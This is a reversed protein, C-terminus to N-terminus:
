FERIREREEATSTNWIRDNKGTRAMSHNPVPSHRTAVHQAYALPPPAATTSRKKKRPKKNGATPMPAHGYGPQYHGNTGYAHDYHLAEGDDESYYDGENDYAMDDLEPDAYQPASQHLHPQHAHAGNRTNVPLPPDQSAKKAAEKERRKQKKRNVASPAPPHAATGNPPM